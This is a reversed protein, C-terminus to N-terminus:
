PSALATRGKTASAVLGHCTSATRTVSRTPLPRRLVGRSASMASAAPSLTPRAKPNWWAISLAPATAPGSMAVPSMAILRESRWTNQIATIGPAIAVSSTATTFSGGRGVAAAVPAAPVAVAVGILVASKM